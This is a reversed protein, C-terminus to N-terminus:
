PEIGDLIESINSGNWKDTRTLAADAPADLDCAIAM